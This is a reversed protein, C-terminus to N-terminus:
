SIGDREMQSSSFCAPSPARSRNLTIERGRPRAVCLLPSFPLFPLLRLISNDICRSRSLGRKGKRNNPIKNKAVVLEQHKYVTGKSRPVVAM